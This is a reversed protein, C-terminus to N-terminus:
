GGITSTIADIKSSVASGLSQFALTAAVAILAGAVAYEVMTLGHEERSFRFIQNLITKIKKM